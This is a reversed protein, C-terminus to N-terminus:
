LMARQDKLAERVKNVDENRPIVGDKCSLAAAVGAAQGLSMATIMVRASAIAKVTSSICRGAVLLNDINLPVLCRYPIEYYKNKVQAFITGTGKPDHVDVPYASRAIADDFRRGQLVDDETLVYEGVIRRTERIGIFPSSCVVYSNEFGPVYKKLFESTRYVQYRAEMEARTLEDADTPDLKIVRTINLNIDGKHFSNGWFMHHSYPFLSEEEVHDKYKDLDASFWMCIKGEGDKEVYATGKGINELAKELDVNVMKYVLSMAQMLGDEERGKKYPAGAWAAIDGDGTADIVVNAKIKRRESKTEVIVYQIKNGEMAVDSAFSHLLLEVKNEDMLKILLYKMLEHDIPTTTRMHANKIEVPGITGGIDKLRGILEEPFGSVVKEGESNHFTHLCLGTIATGGLFGSREILTVKAGCRAASIAAAVGAPGGGAVLVDTIYEKVAKM